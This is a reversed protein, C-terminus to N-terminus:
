EVAECTDNYNDSWVTYDSGNVVGDANLDGTTPGQCTATPYMPKPIGEDLGIILAVFEARLFNHGATNLTMGTYLHGNHVRGRIFIGRITDSRAAIADDEAEIYDMLLLDQAETAGPVSGGGNIIVTASEWRTNVYDILDDLADIYDQQTMGELAEVLGFTLAVYAADDCGVLADMYFKAGPSTHDEVTWDHHSLNVTDKDLIVNTFPVAGGMNTTEYGGIAVLDCDTAIAISPVILTFLLAIFLAFIRM